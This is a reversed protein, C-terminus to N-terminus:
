KKSLQELKDLVEHYGEWDSEYFVGVLPNRDEEKRRAYIKLWMNVLNDKEQPTLYKDIDKTKFVTYRGFDIKDIM